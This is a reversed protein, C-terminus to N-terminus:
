LRSRSNVKDQDLSTDISVKHLLKPMIRQYILFNHPVGDVFDHKPGNCRSMQGQGQTEKDKDLSTIICVQQHLKSM